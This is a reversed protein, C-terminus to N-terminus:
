NQLHRFLFIIFFFNFIQFFKVQNIRLVDSLYKMGVNGFLNNSINLEVITKNTQLCECLYKIGTDGIKNTSFNM